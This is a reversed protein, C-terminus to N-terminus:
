FFTRVAGIVDYRDDALWLLQWKDFTTCPHSIGCCVLDGVALERATPLRLYAHQDNLATIQLDAVSTEPEADRGPRFVACARPLELDYSVDRKGLTLIALDPQPRSQVMAWVELAPRFGERERWEGGLRQRLAAQQREYFGADHTVYCGSRLVTRVPKALPAALERAVVDFLASGGASLLVEDTGFLGEADARVAVERVDEMLTAANQADLRANQTVRLGEYCEIGALRVFRARAVERALAVGEGQSRVGTRGNLYGVEVLAQLPHRPPRAAAASEVRELGARSDVLFWFELDPHADLLELVRAIEVGGVLQNALILRRFGLRVCTDLQHVTAVTLGWAGAGVQRAMIQPAMTTKAHPALSVGSAACFDRMWRENQDLATARLVACPFPLDGRLLNWGRAGVDRNRVAAAGHPFGKFRGDLWEEEIPSLDIM